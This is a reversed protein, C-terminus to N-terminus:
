QGLGKKVDLPLWTGFYNMYFSTLIWGDQSILGCRYLIEIHYPDDNKQRSVAPLGSHGFNFLGGRKPLGDYCLIQNM